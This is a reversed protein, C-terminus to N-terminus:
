RSLPSPSAAAQLTQMWGRSLLSLRWALQVQTAQADALELQAQLLERAANMVELWSKRGALFQRDWAQATAQNAQLSRELTPIREQLSNWLEWDAQVQDQLNRRASELEAQAADLRRQFSEIVTLSSLGAGFRSNLGIYLRNVSNSSFANSDYSSSQREARAYVEPWLEAQRERLEAKQVEILALQRLLAPARELSAAELDALAGPVFRLSQTPASWPVVVTGMLQGIKLRAARLQAQVAAKQAAIQALRGETLVVEVAASAGENVRRQVQEYLRQHTVLGATVAEMKLEAAHWEGWAQVSRLALQQAADEYAHSSAQLGAEAKDVGASLRGATWLPQQLRYTQVTANGRYTTDGSGAQVTELAVSPTPYFQQRATRIDVKAGEILARQAQTSPHTSIATEIVQRLDLAHAGVPGLVLLLTLARLPAVFPKMARM